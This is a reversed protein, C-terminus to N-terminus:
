DFQLLCKFWQWMVKWLQTFVTKGHLWPYKSVNEYLITSLLTIWKSVSNRKYAQTVVCKLSICIFTIFIATNTHMINIYPKFINNYIPNRCAPGCPPQKHTWHVRLAASWVPRTKIIWGLHQIEELKRNDSSESKATHEGSTSLWNHVTNNYSISSFSVHVYLFVNHYILIDM